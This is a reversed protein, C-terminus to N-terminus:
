TERWAIEDIQYGTARIDDGEEFRSAPNQIRKLTPSDTGADTVIYLWYRDGFKRAYKWENATIRVAGSRARAKVEIYRPENTEETEKSPRSRLDFGGHDAKSVDEVERGASTEYAAAVQMGVAEIEEDRTMAPGSGTPEKEPESESDREAGGSERGAPVDDATAEPDILLAAAFIDPAEITLNREASIEDLLADRRAELTEHRNRERRRALDYDEGAAQKQEYKRLKEESESILYDLSKLGYREKIGVRRDRKQQIEELFDGLVRDYLFDELPGEDDLWDAHPLPGTDTDETFAPRPEMDWLSSPPLPQFDDPGRQHICFLRTVRGRGDGGPASSGTADAIEGRVFWLVGERGKQPDSFVARPRGATDVRELLAGELAELLPHGPAVFDWEAEDADHRRSTASRGTASGGDAVEKRFAVRRYRNKLRGWKRRFADADAVKRLERPVKEIRFGADQRAIVEGGLRELGRRVFDEIYEPVLRHEEANQKERQLRELDLHRTALSNQYIREITQDVDASELHEIADRLDELTGQDMVAQRLLGSLDRGPVVDGIVDFVRDTGLDRRMQDLKTFLTDLLDGERTDRSVLNWIYVEREQGYRHIRGMRQELRSPNWPIDYNVMWSCFQLNIGEGAAETAVLIQTEERFVREAGVRAEHSMGGHIVNVAYGLDGLREELYFLTDKHETFILLKRGGLQQLIEDRLRLFKSEDGRNRVRRAHDILDDLIRIEARIEDPNQAVTLQELKEHLEELTEAPLDEVDNESLDGWDVDGGDQGALRHSDAIREPWELLDELKQRRRKLSSLIAHTSSTLRRQLIIMAFTIHRNDKARDWHDTVYDTVREYLDRERDSLHFQVSNVHRQPFLPRGQFDRLDEKLRRIFFPNEGAEVADRLIENNAFFGPRLLDVLLRFNDEKGRHPTATLFLLHQTRESLTEGFRYRKTKDVKASRRGSSYTGDDGASRTYTRTYASMKHAEDVIVLDWDVEELGEHVDDQKAFDISTVARNTKRWAANGAHARLVGRDVTQLELGFKEHMERRWQTVLHGPAVVLVREVLGRHVMEKLILGGMITKGAGADDAIMFRLRPQELAYDYVAELQHPVPEITSTSVALMPDFRHAHGVRLAEVFLFLDEPHVAAAGEGGDGDVRELQEVQAQSLRKDVFKMSDVLVAEFLWFAGRRELKKVRAPESLFDARVIHDEAIDTM